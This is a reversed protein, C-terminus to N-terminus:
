ETAPEPHHKYWESQAKISFHNCIKWHLYQGVRDHRNKYEGPTLISCGSVLHDITVMREDCFKCKPDAGNHLINAQYNRTFLSQDQAALIFGETEAKLGSSRLWQHTAHTDVDANNARAAFQGHLPKEQWRSELQKLGEHKAKKKSKRAIETPSLLNDVELELDLERSYKDSEKTVSHLKKSNEHRNVWQTKIM